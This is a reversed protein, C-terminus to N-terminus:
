KTLRKKQAVLRPPEGRPVNNDRFSWNDAIKTLEDFNAENDVNGLIIEAPVYRGTPGLFRSVARKAAEQRPLHMYHAEIRYGTKKFKDVYGLASKRSKLTGDLVVNVGAERARNVAIELIHSSEEHVQNANFGRFEPLMHKIVDSDFLVVSDKDYVKAQPFKEGDFASKGSGGRGGLITFTPKGSDPLSAKMQSKDLLPAYFKKKGTDPDFGEVGEYLIKEHLALRQNSYVDGKAYLENTSTLAGLKKETELIKTKTNAPFSALISAPTVNADDYRQRFKAASFGPGVMDQLEAVSLPRGDGNVLDRLTIKGERWLDARGEGLVRDQYAKGKRKLFGDFTTDAAIQGDASARTSTPAEDIDLGLERFTKTIPVELSRCNFHRPCGGNFPLTNGNIPQREIDWEAGSYSVCVLSTHGDLTSVQRLGKILDDNADFTARRADNAVAQVSTQVLSAANRRAIDMVGPQGAKGVIRQIIQQNTENNLLGQRVQGKFKNQIDLTQGRWWDAAPSGQILVESALSKFYDSRPMKAADIGMAIELASATAEAVSLAMADAELGNEIDAYRESIIKDTQELFKEVEARKLKGLDNAALAQTLEQQMEQLRKLTANRQGASLRLLNLAQNVVEDFLKEDVTAM